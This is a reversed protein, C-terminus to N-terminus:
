SLLGFCHWFILFSRNWPSLRPRSRCHKWLEDFAKENWKLINWRLWSYSSTIRLTVWRWSSQSAWALISCFYFGSKQLAISWISTYDNLLEEILKLFNQRWQFTLFASGSGFLVTRLLTSLQHRPQFSIFTPMRVWTEKKNDPDVFILHTATLYLTGTSPAKSFKELLRVNEVQLCLRTGLPFVLYPVLSADVDVAVLGRAGTDERWTCYVSYLSWLFPSAPIPFADISLLKQMLRWPPICILLSYSRTHSSRTRKVSNGEKVEALICASTCWLFFFIRWLCNVWTELMVLLM